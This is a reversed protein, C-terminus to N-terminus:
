KTSNLLEELNDVELHARLKELSVHQLAQDVDVLLLQLLLAAQQPVLHSIDTLVWQLAQWASSLFSWNSSSFSM